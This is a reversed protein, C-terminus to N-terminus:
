PQLYTSWFFVAYLKSVNIGVYCLQVYCQFSCFVDTNVLSDDKLATIYTYRPLSPKDSASKLHVVKRECLGHLLCQELYRKQADQSLPPLIPSSPNVTCKLRTKKKFLQQSESQCVVINLKLRVYIMYQDEVDRLIARTSNLNM